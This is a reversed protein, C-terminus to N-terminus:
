TDHNPHAQTLGVSITTNASTIYHADVSPVIHSVHPGAHLGSSHAQFTTPCAIAPFCYLYYALSHSVVWSHYVHHTNVEAIM